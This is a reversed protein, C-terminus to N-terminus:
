VKEPDIGAHRLREDRELDSKSRFDPDQAKAIAELAAAIRQVQEVLSSLAVQLDKEELPM